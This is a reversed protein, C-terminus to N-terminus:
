KAGSKILFTTIRERENEKDQYFNERAFSLATDGNKSRATLSAGRSVLLRVMEVTSWGAACHLATRLFNKDTARLDAGADVLVRVCEVCDTMAARNLLPMGNENRSNVVSADKAIEAKLGAVDGREILAFARNHDAHTVPGAIILTALVLGWVSAHIAKRM